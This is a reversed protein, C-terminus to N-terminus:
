MRWEFLIDSTNTDKIRIYTASSNNFNMMVRMYKIPGGRDIVWNQNFNETGSVQTYSWIRIGEANYGVFMPDNVQSTTGSTRDSEITIQQHSTVDIPESVFRNTYDWMVDISDTGFAYKNMYVKGFYNQMIKSFMTYTKANPINQINVETLNKRGGMEFNAVDLTSPNIVEVSSPYGLKLSTISSNTPIEVNVTTGSADVTTLATCASLDINGTLSTCNSVNLSALNLMHDFVFLNQATEGPVTYTSELSSCGSFNLSQIEPLYNFLTTGNNTYVNEIASDFTISGDLNILDSRFFSNTKREGYKAYWRDNISNYMSTQIVSVITDDLMLSVLYPVTITKGSVFQIQASVNYMYITDDNPLGSICSIRLGKKQSAKDVELQLDTWEASSAVDTLTNYTFVSSGRSIQYTINRVTATYQVDTLGLYLDVITNNQTMTLGSPTTKPTYAGRNDFKYQIGTPYTVGIVHITVSSSQGGTTYWVKIDYNGGAQSESTQLYSHSDVSDSSDIIRIGRETIGTSSQQVQNVSAYSVTWIGETSEGQELLFKTSSLSARKGEAIYLEGDITQIDGGVNIQVYNLKHDIVLGSSGKTFVSDGFWNRIQSLQQTTLQTDNENKLVIYGKLNHNKRGTEPNIEGNLQSILELEDYTLLNNDGGVTASTWSIKDAELTHNPLGEVGETAVIANLWQRVLQISNANQCSTGNLRLTQIAPVGTHLTITANNNADIVSDWFTLSSWTTNNVDFISIDSPLQLTDFRNGAASSWFNIIGSGMGYVNKLESLNYDRIFRTDTFNRQGAFNLTNLNGLTRANGRISGGLTAVVGTYTNTSPSTFNVGINLEKLPSGLEESYVGNIDVTDLGTAIESLDIREMFNAGYIFFPAKTNLNPVAYVLPNTPTVAITGQVEVSNPDVETQQETMYNIATTMYTDKNPYVRVSAGSGQSVNATIYIYHNKYDGCFWKADYYDMSTSLWWHRHTTRSGQLWTLWEPDGQGSEIYKFFGSKNYITECWAKAYEEDFMRSINNYTLGAQYLADAVKPVITNMWYPWAELADFLWNSTVIDGNNNASRGSYAYTTVSGPLKTTRDIPPNYAIGGDNKNGLAIDMDWPEYHFHVGDYTKIQANRELSDVLGFRLIFIYYAAMKYLDIHQAAENQFKQQNNRTSVLWTYWDVFPQATTAFASDSDFKSKGNKTDKKELDDPDPYIMEFATEWGYKNGNRTAFGDTSMYSSFPHNSELVEMRLVNSNDWIKNAATDDNAHTTTLCFPDAPIKYISREGYLFDSKKDDMFVYQGLFTRKQSGAEDYYFVACPFSDAAVRLEYPFESRPSYHSWTYGETNKGDVVNNVDNLETSTHTVTQDSAFLQPLTRLKYEGDIRANYWSSQILRLLGGNHVGSSDAYNAQLVFKNQPISSDKMRYRNKNFPQTEQPSIEFIPQVGAKSKNLWIKMSTIPYNLTSQGHKRIQVNNIKFNKTTDYPCIREITVDTTSGDKDTQGSLINTLDGSILITDLKNKCLDYSIEGQSDLVNNNNVISVKQDSDYVYNNYADAYTIPYNYVRMNYVRVGSNSGGIKINGSADFEYGSALAARELNGNNVIYALGSEVTRDAVNAPMDNIIFALKIRENAKYNTYIVPTGNKAFLTAKTPTIEIRATLPNGIVIIKDDDDNVKETEFEIEITKGNTFSFNSFPAFNVEAYESTGCTRFSNDYWGSNTNWSIGTFTTTVDHQEDSWTDKASSDNTKGYASLKLVYASTEYVTVDTNQLIQIPIRILESNGFQASLYTLPASGENYESYITPIYSLDAAQQRSDATIVTLTEPNEDDENQYLKWAVQIQTDTQDSDTYYGWQLTQPMYQTAQLTLDTIPFTGFDFSTSLCIYKQVSIDSTAVVFTYYLLNSNIKVSGDNYEAEAWIQLTHLGPELTPVVRQTANTQLGTNKLVSHTWEKGTGGDDVKFKITATGDQNNRTFMCPIQLQDGVARKSMFDFSSTVNLQLLVINYTINNRAGTTSGRGAITVTNTGPELYDYISFDVAEGKNYWRTFTTSKGSTENEITYTAQLSDSSEGEDNRINWSFQIRAGLNSSDGYRIFKNSSNVIIDLKYDSPRVISFLELDANDSPNEAWLDRAKQSSFIRYVNNSVDEEVFIPKKLKEQLLERIKGGSVKLGGTVNEGTFSNEGSVWDVFEDIKQTYLEEM